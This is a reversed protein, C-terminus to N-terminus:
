ILMLQLFFIKKKFDQTVQVPKGIREFFDCYIYGLVGETGHVVAQFLIFFLIITQM